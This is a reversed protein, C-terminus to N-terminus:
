SLIEVIGEKLVPQGNRTWGKKEVIYTKIDNDGKFSSSEIIRYNEVEYSNLVIVKQLEGYPKFGLRQLLKLTAFESESLTEKAAKKQFVKEAKDLFHTEAFISLINDEGQKEAAELETDFEDELESIRAKQQAIIQELEQIKSELSNM